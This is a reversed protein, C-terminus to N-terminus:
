EKIDTIDRSIALVSTVKGDVFEPVIKTNFYYKKGQLSMYQYELTKTKGTVFTKELHEEWFKVKKPARGLEGQTKGIIEDLSIDYSKAAAPNAFVHRYQRDFRTIIDPSNEALTRFRIESEQLAKEAQKREAIDTLMALSGTFKGDKNFLSKASILVWLPSGDMCMLKFEYTENIGQRRKEMNMKLIAKGEEDAFDWAFRDIM